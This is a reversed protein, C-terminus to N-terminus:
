FRIAAVEECARNYSEITGIDRFYERIFFGSMKGVLKPLVHYGLDAPTTEPLYDFLAPDAVYVGAGALTSKPNKPKEVFDIVVNQDDLEAIGCETPNSTHFLGLTFIHPHSRHFEVMESLNVNTLNDSYCILFPEDSNIFDRNNRITGASGLLEKEMVTVIKLGFDVENLFNLIPQPFHHLNILVEDIGYKEFSRLWYYLLPKGDIPALCKPINETIPRLRTGLGAALLFAKM